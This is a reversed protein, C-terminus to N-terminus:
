QAPLGPIFGVRESEIALFGTAAIELSQYDTSGSILSQHFDTKGATIQLGFKIGSEHGAVCDM